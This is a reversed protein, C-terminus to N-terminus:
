ADNRPMSISAFFLGFHMFAALALVVLMGTYGGFQEYSVAGVLPGAFLGLGASLRTLSLSQIFERPTLLQRQQAAYIVGQAGFGVAFAIPYLILWWDADSAAFMAIALFALTAGLVAVAMTRAPGWWDIILGAALRALFVTMGAISVTWVADSQTAGFYQFATVQHTQLAQLVITGLLMSLILLASIQM